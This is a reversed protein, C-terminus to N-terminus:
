SVAASPAPEHKIQQVTCPIIHDQFLQKTGEQETNLIEQVAKLAKSEDVTDWAVPLRALDFM